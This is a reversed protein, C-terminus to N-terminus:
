WRCLPVHVSMYTFLVLSMAAEFATEPLEDSISARSPPGPELGLASREWFRSALYAIGGDGLRVRM